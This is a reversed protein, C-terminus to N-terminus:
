KGEAALDAAGEHIDGAVVAQAKVFLPADRRDAPAAFRFTARGGKAVATAREIAKDNSRDHRRKMTEEPSWSPDREFPLKVDRRVELSAFVKTGDPLPGEVTADISEAGRTARVALDDKPFPFRLAPDGLLVYMSAGEDKLRELDVGTGRPLMGRVVNEILRRNSDDGPSGLSSRVAADILDGLRRGPTRLELAM